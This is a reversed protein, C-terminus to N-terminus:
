RAILFIVRAILSILQKVGRSLIVWVSISLNDYNYSIKNWSRICKSKPQSSVNSFVEPPVCEELHPYLALPHKKLAHEIMQVQEIRQKQLPSVRSYCFDNHSFHRHNSSHTASRKAPQSGLGTLLPSLSARGQWWLMDFWAEFIDGVIIIM